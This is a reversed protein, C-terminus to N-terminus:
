YSGGTEKLPRLLSKWLLIFLATLLPRAHLLHAKSYTEFFCTGKLSGLLDPAARAGFFFFAEGDEEVPTEDRGVLNAKESLSFGEASM